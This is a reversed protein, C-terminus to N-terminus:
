ATFLGTQFIWSIKPEDVHNSLPFIGVSVEKVFWEGRSSDATCQLQMQAVGTTTLLCMSGSLQWLGGVPQDVCHQLQVLSATFTTYALCTSQPVCSQTFFSAHNNDDM